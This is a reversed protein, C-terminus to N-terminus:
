PQDTPDCGAETTWTCFPTQGDLDIVEDVVWRHRVADYRALQSGEILYGDRNGNMGFSVGPYLMPHTMRTLGRQALMLNTRTLGGDLGAAIELVQHIAWGRLGYGEAQQGYSTDIGASELEDNVHRIWPDDAWAESTPDIVGGGMVLWGEGGQDAPKLYADPQACPSPTFRITAFKALETDAAEQIALLCPNGATMSIYIDPELEAIRAMETAVSPAAPDHRVVDFREIANSTAAAEGFAREYTRGFSNDMVLAAVTVPEVAGREIWQLWLLAETTQAMRLGTTWPHGSPDAWIPSISIGMLLPICRDNVSSNVAELTNTGTTSLALPEEDGALGDVIRATQEPVYGDDLLVLDVRLGDPGIGGNANVREFYHRAGRGVDGITTLASLPATQVLTIAGDDIGRTDSWGAPCDGTDIAFGSPGRLVGDRGLGYDGDNLEGIIAMRERRWLAEYETVTTPRPPPPTSGDDPAQSSATAESIPTTTIVPRQTTPTSRNVPEDGTCAGLLLVIAPTCFWARWGGGPGTRM